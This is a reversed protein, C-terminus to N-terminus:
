KPWWHPYPRDLKEQQTKSGKTWILRETEIWALVLWSWHIGTALWLRQIEYNPSWDISGVPSKRMGCWLREKEDEWAAAKDKLLSHGAPFFISFLRKARDMYNVYLAKRNTQYLFMCLLLDAYADSDNSAQLTEKARESVAPEQMYWSFPRSEGSYAFDQLENSDELSDFPNM